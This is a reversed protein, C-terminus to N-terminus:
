VICYSEVNRAIKMQFLSNCRTATALLVEAAQQNINVKTLGLGIM